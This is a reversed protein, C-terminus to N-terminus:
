FNFYLFTSVGAFSTISWLAIIIILIISICNTSFEKSLEYTNKCMLVIILLVSIMIVAFISVGVIKIIEM